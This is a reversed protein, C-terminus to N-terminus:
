TLLRTRRDQDQERGGGYSRPQGPSPVLALGYRQATGQEPLDLGSIDIVLRGSVYRLSVSLGHAHITTLHVQCSKWM